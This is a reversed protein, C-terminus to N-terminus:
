TGALQKQVELKATTYMPIEIIATYVNEAVKLPLDHWPSIKRGQQTLYLAFDGTGYQGEVETSVASDPKVIPRSWPVWRKSDANQYYDVVIAWGTPVMFGPPVCNAAVVDSPMPLTCAVAGNRALLRM